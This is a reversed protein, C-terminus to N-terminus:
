FFFGEVQARDCPTDKEWWKKQIVVSSVGSVSFQILHHFDLGFLESVGGCTM